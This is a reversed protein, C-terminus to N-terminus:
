DLSEPQLIPDDESYVKSDEFRSRGPARVVFGIVGGPAGCKKQKYYWRRHSAIELEVPLMVEFGYALSFPTNQRPKPAQEILGCFLLCNMQGFTM